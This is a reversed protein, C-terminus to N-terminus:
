VDNDCKVLRVEAYHVLLFIFQWIFMFPMLLFNILAIYSINKSLQDALLERSERRKYREDLKWSNRAIM